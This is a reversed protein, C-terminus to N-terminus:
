SRINASINPDIFSKNYFLIYRIESNTWAAGLCDPLRLQDITGIKKKIMKPFSQNDIYVTDENKLFSSHTYNRAVKWRSCNLVVKSDMGASVKTHM